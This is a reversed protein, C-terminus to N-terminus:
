RLSCVDPKLSRPMGGPLLWRTRPAAAALDNLADRRQFGQQMAQTVEELSSLRLGSQATLHYREGASQHVELYHHLGQAASYFKVIASATGTGLDGLKDANAPYVNFAVPIFRLRARRKETEQTNTGFYEEYFEAYRTCSYDIEFLIAAATARNRKQFEERGDVHQNWIQWQVAAFAVAAAILTMVGDPSFGKSWDARVYAWAAAGLAIACIAAGFLIKKWSVDAMQNRTPGEAM